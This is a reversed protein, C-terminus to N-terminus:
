SQSRVPFALSSQVSATLLLLYSSPTFMAMLTSAMNAPPLNFVSTKMVKLTLAPFRFCCCETGVCVFFNAQGLAMWM